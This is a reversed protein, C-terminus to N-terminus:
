FEAGINIHIRWEGADETVPSALEFRLAGVPSLFHIGFGAGVNLDFDETFADGGDVFLAARWSENIYRQVELSGVLLRAGGVVLASRNSEDTLASASVETGISQYAFGRISNDGGAFFALSPPLADANRDDTWLIGAEARAVVRWSEGLRRIGALEGYVRLLDQDSGLDGSGLEASLFQSRGRNPDVASGYRARRSYGLGSLLYQGDFDDSFVGWRENLLRARVSLVRGPRSFERRLQLERQRSELDGFENNEVRAISQLLDNAAHDLPISYVVRAEPNIPSWRLRTEQSHGSANIRPTNWALSVRQRTDTSFGVGLEYSHRPSAVLELSVPVEPYDRGAVDPLVIVSAFYGLRLLRNRFELLADQSYDDGAAFPLLGQLVDPNLLAQDSSLRGFQYRRGSDFSLLLQASAAGLDIEIRNEVFRADFYGRRRALQQLASKLDEYRGHHLVDGVGPSRRSILEDFAPDTEGEGRVRVSVGTYRLPQGASVQLVARWIAPSRDVSLEIVSAYYGLARLADGAKTEASAIFREAEARTAPSEGLYARINEKAAKDVGEVRYRLADASWVPTSLLLALFTIIPLSLPRWLLMM